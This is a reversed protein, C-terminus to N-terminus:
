ESFKSLENEQEALKQERQDLIKASRQLQEAQIKLKQKQIEFDNLQRSLTHEQSKIESKTQEFDQKEDLFNQYQAEFNNIKLIQDESILEAQNSFDNAELIVQTQQDTQHNSTWASAEQFEKPPQINSEFSTQIDQNTFEIRPETGSKKLTEPINEPENPDQYGIGQKDMLDFNYSKNTDISRLQQIIDHKEREMDNNEDNLSYNFVNQGDLSPFAKHSINYKSEYMAIRKERELLEQESKNKYEKYKQNKEFLTNGAKQLVKVKELLM